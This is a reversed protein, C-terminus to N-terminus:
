KNILDFFKYKKKKKKYIEVDDRFEIIDNTDNKLLPLNQNSMSLDLVYSTRNKNVRNINKESFYYYFLVIFFFCVFSLFFINKVKKFM